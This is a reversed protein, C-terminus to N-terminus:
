QYSSLSIVRTVLTPFMPVHMESHSNNIYIAEVM